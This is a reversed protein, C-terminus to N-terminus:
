VLLMFLGRQKVLANSVIASFKLAFLGPTARLATLNINFVAHM